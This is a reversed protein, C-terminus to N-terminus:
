ESGLLEMAWKFDVLVSKDNKLKEGLQAVMIPKMCSVGGSENLKSFDTAKVGQEKVDFSRM